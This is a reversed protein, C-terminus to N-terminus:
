RNGSEKDKRFTKEKRRERNVSHTMWEGQKCVKTKKLIEVSSPLRNPLKDGLGILNILLTPSARQNTRFAVGVECFVSAGAGHDIISTM